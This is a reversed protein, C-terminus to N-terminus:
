INENIDEAKNAIAPLALFVEEMDEMRVIGLAQEPVKDMLDQLFFASLQAQFTYDFAGIILQYKDNVTNQIWIDKDWHNQVELAVARAKSYAEFIALQLGLKQPIRDNEAIHYAKDLNLERQVCEFSTAQFPIPYIVRNGSKTYFIIGPLTDMDIHYLFPDAHIAADTPSVAYSQMMIKSEEILSQLFAEVLDCSYCFDITVFLIKPPKIEGPSFEEFNPSSAQSIRHAFNDAELMVHLLGLVVIGGLVAVIYKTTVRLGKKPDPRFLPKYMRNAM